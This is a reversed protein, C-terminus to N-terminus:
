KIQWRQHWNCLLWVKLNDLSEGGPRVFMVWCTSQELM